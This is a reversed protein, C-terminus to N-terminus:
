IQQATLKTENAGQGPAKGGTCRPEGNDEYHERTMSCKACVGTSVGFAHGGSSRDFVM